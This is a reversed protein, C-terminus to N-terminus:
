QKYAVSTLERTFKEGFSNRYVTKIVNLKGGPVLAFWDTGDEKGSFSRGQSDTGKIRGSFYVRFAEFEGAPVKIKEVKEVVREQTVQSTFTEGKVTFSLTWKRGKELPLGIFNAPPDFSCQQGNPHCMVKRLLLGEKSVVVEFTKGGARQVAIYDTDTISILEEELDQAKNNM